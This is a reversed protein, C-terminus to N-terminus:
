PSVTSWCCKGMPLFLSPIEISNGQYSAKWDVLFAADSLMVYSFADMRNLRAATQLWCLRALSRLVSPPRLAAALCKWTHRTVLEGRSILSQWATSAFALVDDPSNQHQQQFTCGFDIHSDDIKHGDHSSGACGVGLAIQSWIQQLMHGCKSGSLSGCSCCCTVM